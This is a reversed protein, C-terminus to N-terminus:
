VSEPFHDLVKNLCNSSSNLSIRRHRRSVDRGKGQSIYSLCSLTNSELIPYLKHRAEDKTKVGETKLWDIISQSDELYLYLELATKKM